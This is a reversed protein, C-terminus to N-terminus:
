SNIIELISDGYKEVKKPGFGRVNLLEEKNSPKDQILSNLEENNFVMYPKLCEEKSTNLRYEKLLKYIKDDGNDEVNNTINNKEKTKTELNYVIKEEVKEATKIEIIDKCEIYQKNEKDASLNNIEENKIKKELSDDKFDEEALSYKSMNNFTIPKNNDILYNGIAYLYKELLDRSNKEDDLVKKILTNVQDYKYINEKIAKPCKEKNIISKPNAMVVVSKIDFTSILKEKSLIERLINVHRENQSIPSYMGEKKIFKGYRNRIIRVFDGDHTIEIDGNLAKTELVFICKKTILIFDFQAVYGEYELRIDHFCLMPLFSNKLEYYVSQEGELGQKLLRIDKDIYEKKNSKVKNSLKILDNLQNNEADFEKLFIPSNITRKGNIMRFLGKEILSM